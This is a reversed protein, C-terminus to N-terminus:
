PRLVPSPSASAGKAYIGFAVAMGIIGWYVTAVAIISSVTYIVFAIAILTAFLARGLVAAEPDRRRVLRISGKTQLISGVFISLFLFLGLLGSDLAVGIYSNVVDIIGEGQRMVQLEPADLFNDSGLLLHREIVPLAATLLDARYEVNGQEAEGIVPLLDILVQGTPHLTLLVLGALVGTGLLSLKKIAQPGTMLFVLALLVSGVWPGRSLSAVIGAVLLAGGMLRYKRNTVAGKLFLFLGFAVMVVYGAVISNGLTANPRLLGSRLLYGGFMNPNLGLAGLVSPYLKWHRIVEFILLLSLLMAGMVFGGAAHRFAEKDRISRSAVYYPLLIDAFLTLISRMGSTVNGERFALLCLLGFYGMLALDVRSSGIPATTKRQALVLAAPLLLTLALLRYHDIVWLHDIIGLGPIMAPAPPSVFLLAFYLGMVHAEKRRQALLLAGIVLMAIWISHSLFLVLTSAFWLNRWRKFTEESLLEAFAGKAVYFFFTAILLIWVLARLHEPM